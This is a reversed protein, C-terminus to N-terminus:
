NNYKCYKNSRGGDMRYPIFRYEKVVDPPTLDLLDRDIEKLVVDATLYKTNYFSAVNQLYDVENVLPHKELAESLAIGETNAIREADSLIEKPIDSHKLLWEDFTIM